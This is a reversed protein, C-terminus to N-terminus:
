AAGALARRFEELIAPDRMARAFIERILEDDEAQLRRTGDAGPRPMMAVVPRLEELVAISGVDVPAPVEVGHARLYAAYADRNALHAYRALMGSGPSWGLLKKVQMEPVGLRLLHTARSHRFLHPYVRKAIKARRATANVVYWGAATTLRPLGNGQRSPFLPTGPKADPHALIWAELYAGGELVYGEGEEGAVKTKRFTCTFVKRPSGGNPVEGVRVDHLDLALVEHIRRGTEWLLVLIARDRVSNAARLMANVDELTLIEVDQLRRKRQKLVLVEALDQRKAARLYMRALGAFQAGSLKTRLRAKLKELDRLSAQHLPGGAWREMLSLCTRYNDLTTEGAGSRALFDDISFRM